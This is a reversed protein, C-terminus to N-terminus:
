INSKNTIPRNDILRTHFQYATRSHEHRIDIWGLHQDHDIISDSLLDQSFLGSHVPVGGFFFDNTKM